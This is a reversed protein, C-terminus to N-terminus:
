YAVAVNLSEKVGRMPLHCVIDCSLLAEASLGTVENGVVVCLPARLQKRALAESLPVSDPTSELGVIMVGDKKLAPIIELVNRFYQWSVSQEAGLSTKTIEKRPPCGTIGCLYLQSFGSGDATRFVSGVNWLSRVDEVIASYSAPTTSVPGGRIQGSHLR